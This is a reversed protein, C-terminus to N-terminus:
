QPFIHRKYRAMGHQAKRGRLSYPPRRLRGPKDAKLPGQPREPLARTTIIAPGAEHDASTSHKLGPFERQRDGASYKQKVLLNRETNRLLKQWFRNFLDNLRQELTKYRGDTEATHDAAAM